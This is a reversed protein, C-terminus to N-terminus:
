ESTTSNYKHPFSEVKFGELIVRRDKHTFVCVYTHLCRYICVCTYVHTYMSIYIYLFMYTNTHTYKHTCTYMYACLYIHTHTFSLHFHISICSPENLKAGAQLFTLVVVGSNSHYLIVYNAAHQGLIEMQKSLAIM